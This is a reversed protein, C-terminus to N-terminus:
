YVHQELRPSCFIGPVADDAFLLREGSEVLESLVERMGPAPMSVFYKTTKGVVRVAGGCTPCNDKQKRIAKQAEDNKITELCLKCLKTERTAPIHEALFSSEWCSSMGRGGTQNQPFHHATKNGKKYFWGYRTKM